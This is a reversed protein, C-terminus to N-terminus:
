RLHKGYGALTAIGVFMDLRRHARRVRWEHARMNQITLEEFCAPSPTALKFSTRLERLARYAMELDFSYSLTLAKVHEVVDFMHGIPVEYDRNAKIIYPFFLFWALIRVLWYIM